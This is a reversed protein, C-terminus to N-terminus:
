IIHLLSKAAKYGTSIAVGFGGERAIYNYDAIINGAVFLNKYLVKNDINLAQFSSNVKVGVSYMSHKDFYNEKFMPEKMYRNIAEGEYFLPLNFIPESYGNDSNIGGGIFKGSALVIGSTKIKSGKNTLIETILDNESKFSVVEENIFEIDNDLIYKSIKKQLRIGEISPNVSFAEIFSLHKSLEDKIEYFKDIGWVPPSIISKINDLSALERIKEILTIYLDKNEVIRALDYNKLNTDSSRRLFDFDLIFFKSDSNVEKKIKNLNHLLREHFFSKFLTFNLIGYNEGSKMISDLDMGLSDNSIVSSEKLYGTQTAVTYNSRSLDLDTLNLDLVQNILRFSDELTQNINRIKNYPHNKNRNKILEIQGSLPIGIIEKISKSKAISAIDYSGSFMASAGAGKSLLIPKYGLKRLKILATVGAIGSGIVVVEKNEM